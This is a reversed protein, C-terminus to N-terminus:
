LAQTPIFTVASSFFCLSLFCCHTPYTFLINPTSSSVLFLQRVSLLLFLRDNPNLISDMHSRANSLLSLFRPFSNDVLSDGSSLVRPSNVFWKSGGWHLFLSQVVVNLHRTTPAAATMIANTPIQPHPHPNENDDNDCGEEYVELKM